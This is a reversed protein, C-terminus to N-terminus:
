LYFIQAGKKIGAALLSEAARHVTDVQRQGFPFGEPNDAFAAAAFADRGQGNHTQDRGLGSNDASFDPEFGVPNFFIQQLINFVVDSYGLGIAADNLDGFVVVAPLLM